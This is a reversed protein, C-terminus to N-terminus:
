YSEVIFIDNEYQRYYTKSAAVCEAAVFLYRVSVRWLVLTLVDSVTVGCCRAQLLPTQCLDVGKSGMEKFEEATCRKM